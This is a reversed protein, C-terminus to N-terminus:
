GPKPHFDTQRQLDQQRFIREGAIVEGAALRLNRALGRGKLVAGRRDPDPDAHPQGEGLACSDVTIQGLVQSGSGLRTRGLVTVGGQYRGGHGVHLSAGPRNARATFGGEGFQNDDGIEIPGTEAMVLTSPFFRNRDGIVLPAAARGELIVGPYLLNGSGLTVFRGVLVSFPDPVINGGAALAATEAVTLYGAATRSRDIVAVLGQAM